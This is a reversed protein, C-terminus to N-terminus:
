GFAANVFRRKFRLDRHQVSQSDIGASGFLGLRSQLGFQFFRELASQRGDDDGADFFTDGVNGNGNAGLAFMGRNVIHQRQFRTFLREPLGNGRHQFFDIVVTFELAYLQNQIQGIDHPIM